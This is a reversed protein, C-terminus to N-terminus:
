PYLVLPFRAPFNFLCFALKLVSLINRSMLSILLECNTFIICSNRQCRDVNRFSLIYSRHDNFSWIMILSGKLYFRCDAHSHLQHNIPTSNHLVTMTNQLLAGVCRIFSLSDTQITIVQSFQKYIFFILTM